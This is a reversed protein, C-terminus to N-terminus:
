SANLPLTGDDKLQRYREDYEADKDVEFWNMEGHPGAFFGDVSVNNFVTIKRMNNVQGVM